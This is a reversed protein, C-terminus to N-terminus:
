FTIMSSATVRMSDHQDSIHKQKDYFFDTQIKIKSIDSIWKEIFGTVYVGNEEPNFVNEIGYRNKREKDDYYAWFSISNGLDEWPSTRLHRSQVFSDVIFISTGISASGGRLSIDKEISTAINWISGANEGNHKALATSTVTWSDFNKSLKIYTASIKYPNPSFNSETTIKESPWSCWGRTFGGEITIEDVRTGFSTFLTYGQDGTPNELKKDKLEPVAEPSIKSWHTEYLVLKFYSDMSFDVKGWVGPVGIWKIKLPDIADIPFFQYQIDRLANVLGDHEPFTKIGAGWTFSDRETEVYFDKLSIFPRTTYNISEWDSNDNYSENEYSGENDKITAIGATRESINMNFFTESQLWTYSNFDNDFNKISDCYASKILLFATFVAIMVIAKKM